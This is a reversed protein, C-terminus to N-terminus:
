INHFSFKSMDWCVFHDKNKALSSTKTIIFAVRMCYSIDPICQWLSFFTMKLFNDM